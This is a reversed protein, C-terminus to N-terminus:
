RYGDGKLWGHDLICRKIGAGTRIRNITRGVTRAESERELWRAVVAAANEQYAECTRCISSCPGERPNDPHCSLCHNPPVVDSAPLSASSATVYDQLMAIHRPTISRYRHALRLRFVNNRLLYPHPLRSPAQQINLYTINRWSTTWDPGRPRQRLEWNADTVDRPINNPTSSTSTPPAIATILAGLWESCGELDLWRLSYTNESLLRLIVASEEFDKDSASYLSTGSASYESGTKSVYTSTKMNPTRTPLPWYALSLHTLTHLEKSLSLLDNWSVNVSPYALSLKTFFPTATKLTSPISSFPTEISVVDEWSEAVDDETTSSDILVSTAEVEPKTLWRKLEKVTFSWGALGSLDLCTIDAHRPFLAQLSEM